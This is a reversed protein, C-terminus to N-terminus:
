FCMFCFYVFNFPSISLDIIVTSIKVVREDIPLVSFLFKLLFVFSKLLMMLWISKISM